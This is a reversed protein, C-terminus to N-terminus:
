PSEFDIVSMKYMRLLALDSAKFGFKITLSRELGSM